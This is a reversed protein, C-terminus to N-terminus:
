RARDPQREAIVVGIDDWAHWHRKLPVAGVEEVFPRAEAPSDNAVAVCIKRAGQEHFWKALLGLLATGIRRRRRAPTVFLHQLEGDCQHRTTLHGAIYGIVEGRAVAVYAIRAALAQQPHHHGDLYAAMRPDGQGAAEFYPDSLRCEAMSPVDASTATRFTIERHLDLLAM